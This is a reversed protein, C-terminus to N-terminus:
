TERRSIEDRQKYLGQLRQKTLKHFRVDGNVVNTNKLEHNVADVELIRELWNVISGHSIVLVAANRPYTELIHILFSYLRYEIDCKNEGSEGFRTMTDGLVQAERIRDLKANNPHGSYVGYDIEKVRDELKVKPPTIELYDSVVEATHITRKLPSVYIADLPNPILKVADKIQKVGKPTLRYPDSTNSSLLGAVNAESEGHRLLIIQM